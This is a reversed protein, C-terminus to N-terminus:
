RIITGLSEVLKRTFFAKGQENLHINDVFYQGIFEPQDMNLFLVRNEESYKTLKKIYTDLDSPSAGPGEFRLIPMRVLILQIGHERCLRIVEPLFSKTVQDDFNLAESRYIYEDSADIAESLFTLDLNNAKFVAEMARDMCAPDCDLLRQGLSYRIHYDLSQRINWRLGYLPLYGELARELPTMQNIYAKQILVEDTPAAFEDILEFYRGTVRYGPITMMTDRFFLVLYGPKHEAVVINNKIILYWITSATGPLSVMVTKKDMLRAFTEDDVAEGLMSDGLLLLEPQQENLVNIYTKRIHRDLQPGIDRPYPVQLRAPLYFSLFGLLVISIALYNRFATM